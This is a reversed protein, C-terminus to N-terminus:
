VENSNAQRPHRSHPYPLISYDSDPRAPRASLRPAPPSYEMKCLLAQFCRYSVTDAQFETRLFASM